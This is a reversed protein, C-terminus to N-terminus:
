LVERYIKGVGNSRPRHQSQQTAAAAAIINCTGLPVVLSYM